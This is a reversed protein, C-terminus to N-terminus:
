LIGTIARYNLMTNNLMELEFKLKDLSEKGNELSSRAATISQSAASRIQFEADRSEANPYKKKSTGDEIESSIESKIKAEEEYLTRELGDVNKASDLVRMRLDHIQEPLKNLSEILLEKEM